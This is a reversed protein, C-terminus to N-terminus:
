HPCYCVLISSVGAVLLQVSFIPSFSLMYLNDSADIDFVTYSCMIPDPEPRLASCLDCSSRNKQTKATLLERGTQPAVDDAPHLINQSLAM